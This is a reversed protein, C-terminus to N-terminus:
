NKSNVYFEGYSGSSNTKTRKNFITFDKATAKQTKKNFIIKSAKLDFKECNLTAKGFLSVITNNNSSRTSDKASYKVKEKLSDTQLIITNYITKRIDKSILEIKEPKAYEISNIVYRDNNSIKEARAVQMSSTLGISVSVLLLYTIKKLNM